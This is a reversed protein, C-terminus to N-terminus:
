LSYKIFEGNRLPISKLKGDEPIKEFYYLLANIWGGHTVLLITEKSYNKKLEEILDRVREILEKIGEVGYEKSNILYNHYLAQNYESAPKGEYEGLFREELRPDIWIAHNPVVISATELARKLPSSIVLDFHVNSLMWCTNQAQKRGNDNLPVNTRGQLLGKQNYDTEGHRLVYLEM